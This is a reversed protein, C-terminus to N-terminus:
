IMKLALWNTVWGVLLGTIPLLWGPQALAWLTAVPVGLLAGFYLGSVGIFRFKWGCRLLIRQAPTIACLPASSWRGCTWSPTSTRTKDDMAQEIVAPIQARMRARAQDQAGQADGAM